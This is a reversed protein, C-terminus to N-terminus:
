LACVAHENAGSNVLIQAIELHGAAVAELLPSSRTTGIHSSELDFVHTQARQSHKLNEM